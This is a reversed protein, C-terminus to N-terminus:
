KTTPKRGRKKEITVIETIEIEPLKKFDKKRNEIEDQTGNTLYEIAYEEDMKFGYRHKVSGTKKSRFSYIKQTDFLIFTQEMETKILHKFQPEGDSVKKVFTNFVSEFNCGGCSLNYGMYEFFYNFYATM